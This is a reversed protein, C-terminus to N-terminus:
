RYHYPAKTHTSLSVQHNFVRLSPSPTSPGSRGSLDLIYDSDQRPVTRAKKVIRATLERCLERLRGTRETQCSKGPSSFPTDGYSVGTRTSRAVAPDRRASPAYFPSSQTPISQIPPLLSIDGIFLLFFYFLALDFTYSGRALPLPVEWRSVSGREASSQPRRICSPHTFWRPGFIRVSVPTM